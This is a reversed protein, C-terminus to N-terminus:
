STGESKTHVIVFRTAGGQSQPTVTVVVSDKLTGDVTATVLTTTNGSESVQVTDGLKGRYFDVVQAEPDTTSYASSVVSNNGIKMKMGGAELHTAGPYLAVGLDAEGVDAGKGVSLSSGAAHIARYAIYGAIGAAGVGLVVIVAIVILIIKLAGGGSSKQQQQYAPYVGPQPPVAAVPVTQPPPIAAPPTVPPAVAEPAIPTGCSPCFGTSSSLSAGCKSCFDAM